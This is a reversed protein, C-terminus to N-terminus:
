SWSVPNALGTELLPFKSRHVGRTSEYSYNRLSMQENGQVKPRQGEWIYDEEESQQWHGGGSSKRRIDEQGNPFQTLGGAGPGPGRNYGYGGFSLPRSSQRWDYDNQHRIHYSGTGGMSYM